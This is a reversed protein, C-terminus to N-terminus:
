TPLLWTGSTVIPGSLLSWNTGTGIRTFTGGAEEPIRAPSVFRTVQMVVETLSGFRCVVSVAVTSTRSLLANEVWIESISPFSNPGTAMVSDRATCFPSVIEVISVIELLPFIGSFKSTLANDDLM